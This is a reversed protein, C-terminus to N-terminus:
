PSSRTGLFRLKTGIEAYGRGSRDEDGNFLLNPYSGYIEWFSGIGLTLSAPLTLANDTQTGTGIGWLGVCINGADLTEASPVVVLGTEGSISPNAFVETALLSLFITLIVRLRQM